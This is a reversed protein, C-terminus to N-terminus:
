LMDHGPTVPFGGDTPFAPLHASRLSEVRQLIGQKRSGESPSPLVGRPKLTPTEAM